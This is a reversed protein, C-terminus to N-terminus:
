AVQGFEQRNFEPKFLPEVAPLSVEPGASKAGNDKTEQKWGTGVM